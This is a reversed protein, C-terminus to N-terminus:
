SDKSAEKMFGSDYGESEEEFYSSDDELVIIHDFGGEISSKYFLNNVIVNFIKNNYNFKKILKRDLKFLALLFNRFPKLVLEQKEANM